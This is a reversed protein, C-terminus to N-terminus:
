SHDEAVNIKSKNCMAPRQLMQDDRIKERNEADNKGVGEVEVEKFEEKSSRRGM